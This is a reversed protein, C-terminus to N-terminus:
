DPLEQLAPLLKPLCHLLRSLSALGPTHMSVHRSYVSHLIINGMWLAISVFLFWPSILLGFPCLLALASAVYFWRYEAPSSVPLGSFFGAM